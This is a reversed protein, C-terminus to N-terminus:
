WSHLKLPSALLYHSQYCGDMQNHTQKHTQPCEWASGNSRQRPLFFAVFIHFNPLIKWEAGERQIEFPLQSHSRCVIFIINEVTQKDIVPNGRFRRSLIEHSKWSRIVFNWSEIDVYMNTPNQCAATYRRRNMPILFKNTLNWSKEMVTAVRSLTKAQHWHLIRYYSPLAKSWYPIVKDLGPMRNFILLGLLNMPFQIDVAKYMFYM